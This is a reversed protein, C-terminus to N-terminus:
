AAAAVIGLSVAAIYVAETGLDVTGAALSVAVIYAAKRDAAVSCRLLIAAAAGM